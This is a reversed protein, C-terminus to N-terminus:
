AYLSLSLSSPLSCLLIVLVLQFIRVEVSTDGRAPGEAPAAWV